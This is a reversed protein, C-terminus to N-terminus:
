ISKVTIVKVKVYSEKFLNQEKEDRVTSVKVIENLSTKLRLSIKTTKKVKKDLNYYDQYKQNPKSRRQVRQLYTRNVSNYHNKALFPYPVLPRTM